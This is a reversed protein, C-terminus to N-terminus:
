WQWAATAAEPEPEVGSRPEAPETEMPLAQETHETPAKPESEANPLSWGWLDQPAVTAAQQAIRLMAAPSMLSSMIASLVIFDHGAIKGSEPLLGRAQSVADAVTELDQGLIRLSRLKQEVRVLLNKARQSVEGRSPDWGLRVDQAIEDLVRAALAGVEEIVGKDEKANPTIKFVALSAGIRQGIWEPSPFAGAWPRVEPHLDLWAQMLDPVRQLFDAKAAELDAVEQRLKDLVVDLTEDAIAWGSLFRVGHARCVRHMRARITNFIKLHSRDMYAVSGETFVEDGGGRAISGSICRVDPQIINLEEILEEIIHM